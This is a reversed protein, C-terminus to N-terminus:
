PKRAPWTASRRAAFAAHDGGRRDLYAATEKPTRLYKAVNYGTTQTKRM